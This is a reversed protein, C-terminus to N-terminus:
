GNFSATKNGLVSVLILSPGTHAGIVPSARSLYIPVQPYIARLRQILSNAEDLNGAYEVALGEVERFSAAFDCLHDIAKTRSRAKAFPYVEGERIGIVPNIKLLSGLFAQARGIRGGRQLYELSDFAALMDVRHITQRAIELVTNLGAGSQAAKAATIAIFGQAMVAQQSDLVEVHCPKKMLGVAQLAVQYSGSLKSTLSIVVIEDTKEALQDYTNAFAAPPSVSTVPLIKSTELKKYFEDATIDFGDRYVETGFRVVLPVVSIGFEQALDSPLDAVSDTVIAVKSM